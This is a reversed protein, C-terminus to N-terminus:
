RATGLHAIAGGLGYNSFDDVALNEVFHTRQITATGGSIHLGGGADATYAARNGSITSNTINSSHNTRRGSGSLRYRRRHRRQRRAAQAPSSATNNSITSNIITLNGRAGSAIGGGPGQTATNGDVTM